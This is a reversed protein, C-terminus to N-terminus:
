RMMERELHFLKPANLSKSSHCSSPRYDNAEETDRPSCNGGLVASLQKRARGETM